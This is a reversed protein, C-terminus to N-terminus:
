LTSNVLSKRGGWWQHSKEDTLENNHLKEGDGLMAQTRERLSDESFELNKEKDKTGVGLSLEPTKKAYEFEDLHEASFFCFCFCLVVVFEGIKKELIWRM